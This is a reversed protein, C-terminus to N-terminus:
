RGMRRVGRMVTSHDTGFMRGVEAYSLGYGDRLAAWAAWRARVVTPSRKRMDLADEPAVGYRRTAAAITDLTESTLNM